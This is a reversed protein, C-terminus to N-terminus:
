VVYTVTLARVTLERGRSLVLDLVVTFVVM